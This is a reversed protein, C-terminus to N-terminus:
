RNFRVLCNQVLKVMKFTKTFMCSLWVSFHQDYIGNEIGSQVHM